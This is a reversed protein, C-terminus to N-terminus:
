LTTKIQDDLQHLEEKVIPDSEKQRHDKANRIDDFVKSYNKTSLDPEKPFSEEETPFDENMRPDSIELKSERKKLTFM